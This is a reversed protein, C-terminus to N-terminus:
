FGCVLVFPKNAGGSRLSASSDTSDMVQVRQAPSVKSVREPARCAPQCRSVSLAILRCHQAQRPSFAPSHGCWKTFPLAPKIFDACNQVRFQVDCNSSHRSHSVLSRFRHSFSPFSVECNTASFCSQCTRRPGSAALTWARSKGWLSELAPWAFHRSRLASPLPGFLNSHRTRRAAIQHSFLEGCSKVLKRTFPTRPRVSRPHARVCWPQQRAAQGVSTYRPTTSGVGLGSDALRAALESRAGCNANRSYITQGRLAAGLEKDRARREKPGEKRNSFSLRPADRAPCTRPRARSDSRPDTIFFAPASLYRRAM